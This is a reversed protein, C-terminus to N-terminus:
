GSIKDKLAFMISFASFKEWYLDALKDWTQQTEQQLPDMLSIDNTDYVYFDTMEPV